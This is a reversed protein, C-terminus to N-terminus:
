ALPELLPLTLFLSSFNIRNERSNQSFLSVVQQEFYIFQSLEVLLLM